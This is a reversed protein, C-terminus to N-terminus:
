HFAAYSYDNVQWAGGIQTWLRVYITRGDTPIGAVTQSTALNINNGFVNGQGQVTGVDLWYASAGTGASWTFTVSTGSLTSGPAPSLMVAKAGLTAATYTYDNFSWVNSQQTWLRVYITAGATPIGTVAQSTALAVNNGFIAGQGQATGVDLWYASAGAASSWAFTVSAGNLTSGPAPSVLVAKAALTAAIYTYDNYSWAGSQQTWLRVFITGGTTPLGGITQSTALALNAAYINGQGQSTGVDLWYATAGSGPSWTFTVSAGSLTSAPAPNVMVAKTGLTAATYTYDNYSWTGSQLTWLRVYITGGTTPISSVAQSLSLGLNGAFISGQGQVTGADLWYASAGAAATWTFTASVGPLTSGPPPSAMVAKTNLTAATYTYDNYVWNGSLQSWLRVYITGASTPIGNVTQSQALGVNNGFINGQGQV